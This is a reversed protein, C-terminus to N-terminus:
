ISSASKVIIRKNVNGNELEINGFDDHNSIPTSCSSRRKLLDSNGNTRFESLSKSSKITIVPAVSTNNENIEFCIIVIRYIELVVLIFNKITFFYITFNATIIFKGIVALRMALFPLDQTFLVLLVSWIENSFVSDLCKSGNAKRKATLTM